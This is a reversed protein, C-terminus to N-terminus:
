TQESSGPSDQAAAERALAVTRPKVKNSLLIGLWKFENSSELALKIIMTLLISLLMGVPGFVWGWVLLSILVVTPSLGLTEGMFRPEIVSGIVVNTVAFLILALIAESVGLGLLAVLIAPIAAIVSGITPIFNLLGALIGWLIAFDVGIIALGVGVILGTALSSATKIALYRNVSRLFHRSRVKARRKHPFAAIVRDQISREESLLFMFILLVLFLNATFQGVAAALGGALGTLTSSDPLPIQDPIAEPPVGRALMFAQVHTFGEMLRAQYEPAQAAMSVAAGKLALFLAFFSLSVVAFLIIVALIGPVGKRQMWTLPPISIIAMFAALLFPSIISSISKLGALVIVVAAAAFLWMWPNLRRTENM